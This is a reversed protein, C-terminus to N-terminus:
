PQLHACRERLLEEVQALVQEPSITALAEAAHEPLMQQWIPRGGIFYSIHRPPPWPVVLRGQRPRRPIPQFNALSTPGFIGVYPTDESAAAHLLSSDNGIFLDCCGILAISALMELKGTAVIPQHRMLSAVERALMEEDRGGMLVIHASWREALTDAVGAFRAAPWRKGGNLGAGGPHIAVVPREGSAIDHARLFAEAAARQEAPLDLRPRHDVQEWPPLNLERVCDYYIRVAHTARWRRHRAPILWWLPDFKMYTRLPIGALLSIWKYAPSTFDIAAEFREARLRALLRATAPLSSPRDLAPMIIPPDVEHVCRLIPANSAYTLPVIRAQPYRNRLARLTPTIFLTDGIPLMALLLIRQPM